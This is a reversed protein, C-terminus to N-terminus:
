HDNRGGEADIYFYDSVAYGTRRRFQATYPFNDKPTFDVWVFAKSVKSIKGEYTKKSKGVTDLTVIITDGVTM